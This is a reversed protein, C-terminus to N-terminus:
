SERSRRLNTWEIVALDQAKALEEGTLDVGPTDAAADIIARVQVEGEEEMLGDLIASVTDEHVGREVLFRALPTHSVPVYGGDTAPELGIEQMQSNFKKVIIDQRSQVVPEKMDKDKDVESVMRRMQKLVPVGSQSKSGTVRRAAVVVIIMALAFLFIPSQVWEIVLDIIETFQM